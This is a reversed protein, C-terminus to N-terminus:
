RPRTPWRPEGATESGHDCAAFGSEPAPQLTASDERDQRQCTLKCRRLALARGLWRSQFHWWDKWVIARPLSPSSPGDQHNEDAAQNQQPNNHGSEHHPGAGRRWVAWALVGRTLGRRARRCSRTRSRPRGGSGRVRGAGWGRVRGIWGGGRRRRVGVRAPSRRRGVIVCSSEDIRDISWGFAEGGCWRPRLVSREWFFQSVQRM